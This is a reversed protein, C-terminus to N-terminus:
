RKSRRWEWPAVPEGVWLGRREAKAREQVEPLTKDKHLVTLNLGDGEQGISQALTTEGDKSPEAGRAELGPLLPAKRKELLAQPNQNLNHFLSGLADEALTLFMPTAMRTPRQTGTM